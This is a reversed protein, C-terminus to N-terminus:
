LSGGYIRLLRKPGLVLAFAIVALAPTALYVAWFLAPGQIGLWTSYLWALMYDVSTGELTAGGPIIFEGASNLAFPPSLNDIVFSFVAFTAIGHVFISALSYRKKLATSILVGFFAVFILSIGLNWLLYQEVPNLALFDPSSQFFPILLALGVGVLVIIVVAGLPPVKGCPM